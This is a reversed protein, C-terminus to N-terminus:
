RVVLTATKHAPHLQCYIKYTGANIATFKVDIPEGPKVEEQIGYGEISFGHTATTTNGVKIDVRNRKDVTVTAPTFGAGDDVKGANITRHVAQSGGCASMGVAVVAALATSLAARAPRRM